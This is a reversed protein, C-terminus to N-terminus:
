ESRSELQEDPFGSQAIAEVALQVRPYERDATPVAHSM